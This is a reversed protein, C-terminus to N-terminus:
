QKKLHFKRVNFHIIKVTGTKVFLDIGTVWMGTTMYIM